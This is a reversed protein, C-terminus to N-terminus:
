EDKARDRQRECADRDRDRNERDLGAAGLM